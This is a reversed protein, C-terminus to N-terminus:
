LTSTQPAHGARKIKEAFFRYVLGSLLAGGLLLAIMVLGLCFGRDMLKQADGAAKQSLRELQPVSENVAAVLSNVDKAMAGVRDAVQGYDLINFPLSNTDPVANTVPEGVGFLKMLTTFTGLTANLSTSMKDGSALARDVNAALDKLKGEQQDLAALIEKRETSIRDPLQAALQGVSETARSIRDASQALSTANTLVQRLQPQDTLEYTLLETQFRLLFPIRQATFMAREALLRTQTIERVAPDLGSTPDLDVLSFVSNVDAEVKHEHVFTLALEQPRALFTGLAEPNQASWRDISERLEKIYSPKLESAALQWANTELVRSTALWLEYTPAKDAKRWRDEVSMRSLTAVAVLDLLNANPNRGSAISTMASSSLLKLRLAEIRAPETGTKSAYDDLALSMQMSFNDAFRQLQEQLELPDAQANAKGPVVANVVTQPARLLSCGSPTILLALMALVALSRGAALRLLPKMLGILPSFSMSRTKRKMTPEPKDM